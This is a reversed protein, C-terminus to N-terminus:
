SRRMNRRREAEYGAALEVRISEQMQLWRVALADRLAPSLPKKPNDVIVRARPTGSLSGGVDAEILGQAIVNPRSADLRRNTLRLWARQLASRQKIVVFRSALLRRDMSVRYAGAIDFWEVM